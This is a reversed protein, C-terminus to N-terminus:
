QRYNLSRRADIQQGGGVVNVVEIQDGEGVMTSDYAKRKVIVFNHEVAVRLPDVALTTLLQTLTLPGALEFLDGNLTIQM